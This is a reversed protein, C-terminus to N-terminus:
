RIVTYPNTGFIAYRIGAGLSVSTQLPAYQAQLFVSLIKAPRQLILTERNWFLKQHLKYQLRSHFVPVPILSNDWQAVLGFEGRYRKLPADWVRSLGFQINTEASQLSILPQIHVLIKSIQVELGFQLSPVGNWIIASNGGFGLDSYSFTPWWESEQTAQNRRDLFEIESQLIDEKLHMSADLIKEPAEYLLIDYSYMVRDLFFRIVTSYGDKRYWYEDDLELQFDSANKLAQLQFYKVLLATKNQKRYDSSIFSINKAFLVALEERFVTTFEKQYSNQKIYYRFQLEWPLFSPLTRVQPPQTRIDSLSISSTDQLYHFGTTDQASGLVPLLILLTLSLITLSKRLIM